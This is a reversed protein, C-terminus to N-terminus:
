CFERRFGRVARSLAPIVFGLAILVPSTPKALLCLTDLSMRAEHSVKGCTEITQFPSMLKSPRMSARTTARHSTRLFSYLAPTTKKPSRGRKRKRVYCASDACHEKVCGVVASGCGSSPGESLFVAVIDRHHGSLLVFAADAVRNHIRRPAAREVSRRGSDLRWGQSKERADFRSAPYFDCPTLSFQQPHVTFLTRSVPMSTQLPTRRSYAAATEGFATVRSTDLASLAM